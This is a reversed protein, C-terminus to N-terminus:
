DSAHSHSKEKVLEENPKAIYAVLAIVLGVNLPQVATAAATATCFAHRM